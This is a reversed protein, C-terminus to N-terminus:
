WGVAVFNILLNGGSVVAGTAADKADITFSSLTVATQDVTLAVEITPVSGLCIVVTVFGTPFSSPLNVVAKGNIDTTISKSGAQYILGTSPPAGGIYSGDNDYTTNPLALLGDVSVSLLNDTDPDIDIGIDYPTANSGDGSITLGDDVEVSTGGAFLGSAGCQLNNAADPDVLVGIVAPSATTGAGTVTTCSGASISAGTANSSSCGCRGAM